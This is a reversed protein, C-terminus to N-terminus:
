RNLFVSNFFRSKLIFFLINKKGDRILQVKTTNGFLDFVLRPRLLGNNNNEDIQNSDILTGRLVNNIAYNLCYNQTLWVTLRIENYLNIHKELSVMTYFPSLTSEMTSLPLDDTPIQHGTYLGLRLSGQWIPSPQQQQLEFTIKEFVNIPRNSFIIGNAFGTTRRASLGDSSINIAAGHNTKEFSLM